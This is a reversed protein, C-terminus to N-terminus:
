TLKRGMTTCINDFGNKRYFKIAAENFSYVNLEVEEIGVNKAYKMLEDFLLQGAGKGRYNHDVAIGDILLWKRPQLVPFDPAKRIYAEAFGIVINDSEIVILIGDPNSLVSDYYESPRGINDPKRFRNPYQDRHLIDVQDYINNLTEYDAKKAQRVLM